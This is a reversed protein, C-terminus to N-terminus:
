RSIFESFEDDNQSIYGGLFPEGCEYCYLLELVRAGCGCQLTPTNYLKGFGRNEYSYHPELESCEKNVCAWIGDIQRFFNHVRFTPLPNSPDHKTEAMVDELFAEFNEVAGKRDLHEGIQSLPVPKMEAPPAGSVDIAAKALKVRSSSENGSFTVEKNGGVFSFTDRSVGFFREVFEEGEPSDDLSASTAIIRLQLSDILGLRDLFQCRLPWKQGQLEQAHLEDVM